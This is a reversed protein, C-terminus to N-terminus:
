TESNGIGQLTMARLLNAFIVTSTVPGVGGPVPTLWAVAQEAPLAAVAAADVDGVMRGDVMSIGADVVVQGAAVHDTGILGPRGAAIFLVEAGRTAAALDATRSHCVTVTANRNILMPVLGRGVTRGRGVVTVRRGDLPGVTEALRICGLPTAPCLADSERGISLLGLNDATLGDVDKLRELRAIAPDASLRDDVPLDVVIGHVAPDASLAAVRDEFATQGRTPDIEVVLLEIGLKAATRAKAQAYSSNAPDSSAILVALRPIIGADALRAVGAAIEARLGEAIPGGRLVQAPPMLGGDLKCQLM